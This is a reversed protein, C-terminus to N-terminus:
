HVGVIHEVMVESMMAFQSAMAGNCAVNAGLDLVVTKGQKKPLVVMQLAPREIGDLPKLVLKAM